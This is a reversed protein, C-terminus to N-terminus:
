TQKAVIDIPGHIDGYSMADFSNIGSVHICKITSKDVVRLSTNNIAGRVHIGIRLHVNSINGYLHVTLSM